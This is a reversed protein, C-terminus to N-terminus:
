TFFFGLFWVLLRVLYVKYVEGFGGEGLKNEASFKNTAAEITSFDFQLSQVPTIDSAAICYFLVCLYYIFLLVKGFEFDTHPYKCKGDPVSDRKKRARRTLFCVGAIFLIVAVTIPVVIAM